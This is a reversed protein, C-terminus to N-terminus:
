SDAKSGIEIDADLIAGDFGTGREDGYEVILSGPRTTNFIWNDSFHEGEYV